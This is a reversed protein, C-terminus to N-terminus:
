QWPMAGNLWAAVFLTGFVLAVVGLTMWFGRGPPDKSPDYDPIDEQPGSM